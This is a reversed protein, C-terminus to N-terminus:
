KPLRGCNQSSKCLWYSRASTSRWRPASISLRTRGPSAAHNTRTCLPSSSAGSVTTVKTGSMRQFEPLLREYAGAVGGSILVNLQLSEKTM